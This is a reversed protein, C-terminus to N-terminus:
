TNANEEQTTSQCILRAMDNLQLCQTRQITTRENHHQWPALILLQGRACAEMRAGGPKALDTLGNEQLFILPLGEDFAARMVAKEGPSISPSVLVAGQRAQSLIREKYAEIDAETMRRSCQVQVLVPRQALFLNGQASFTTGGLVINRRVRFLDPHEHKMLLRRPNDTLYRRWTDLQGSRMLIKDCYNPAFLLGHHRDYHAKRDYPQAPTPHPQQPRQTQQTPM